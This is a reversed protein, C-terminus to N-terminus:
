PQSVKRAARQPELAKLVAAVLFEASEERVNAWGTIDAVAAIAREISGEDLEMWYQPMPEASMAAIAADAVRDLLTDWDYEDAHRAVIVVIPTDDHLATDIADLVRERRDTM